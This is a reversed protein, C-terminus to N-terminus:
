VVSDNSTKLVSRHPSTGSREQQQENRGNARRRIDNCLGCEVRIEIVERRAEPEVAGMQADIALGTVDARHELARRRSAHAAMRNSRADLRAGFGDIVHQARFSAIIAVSRRCPEREDLHIMVRNEAAARRAVVVDLADALRGIMRRRLLLAVAAVAGRTPERDEEVMRPDNRAAHATVVSDARGSLIEAMDRRRVNALVTVRRRRECGDRSDVVRLHETRARAAVVVDHGCALGRIVDHAAIGAIVAVRRVGPDGGVEIVVVDRAAAHAAM